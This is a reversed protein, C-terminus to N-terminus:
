DGKSKFISKRKTKPKKAKKEVVPVESVEKEKRINKSHIAASGRSRNKQDERSQGQRPM